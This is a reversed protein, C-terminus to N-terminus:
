SCVNICILSQAPQLLQLTPGMEKQGYFDKKTIEIRSQIDKCYGDESTFSGLYRFQEVTQGYICIKVKTKRDRSICM